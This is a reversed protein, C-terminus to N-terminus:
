NADPEWPWPGETWNWAGGHNGYMTLPGCQTEYAEVLQKREDMLKRYHQMAEASEPYADLYLVTETLSFDVARLKQLTERCGRSGGVANNVPASCGACRRVNNRNNNSM